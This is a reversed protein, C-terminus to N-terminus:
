AGMFQGELYNLINEVLMKPIDENNVKIWHIRGDRKFWTLQRKAFRRTELKIEAVMEKYSLFGTLYWIVQKYGLAQMANARYDCGSAILGEVEKILGMDLMKEVRQEIREYLEKREMMLGVVALQYAGSKRQQQMSFPVGTLEYVELARVIRKEDNLNIKRAYDPDITTLHAYVAELGKAEIMNHWKQRVKQKSEIPYFQYDDVVAQYYLGTGGVLIPLKGRTQVEEITKRALAQYRAVNFDENVNAIDILHHPVMGQDLRSVKATGIDMGRYVQMSDCSLIEGGLRSAVEISIASKGVATPGVIAALKMRGM